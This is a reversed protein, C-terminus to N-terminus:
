ASRLFAASAEHGMGTLRTACASRMGQLLDHSGEAHWQEALFLLSAMPSASREPQHHNQVADIVADPLGWKRLLTAGADAHDMSYTLVEAYPLPFGSGLWDSLTIRSAADGSEFVLRGVDHLLGAVYAEAPDLRAAGAVDAAIDAIRQSKDWLDRLSSSAFIKGFSVALLVRRAHPVGIRAIADVLRSIRQPPGFSASNAIELLRGTLIQDTAVISELAAPSTTDSTRLLRGAAKPMVPLDTDRFRFAPPLTVKRLAIRAHRMANGSNERDFGTIAEALTLGELAAFEVAEDFENCVDLVDASLDVADCGSSKDSAVRLLIREALDLTDRSIGTFWDFVSGIGGRDTSHHLSAAVGIAAEVDAGLNLINSTRRALACVRRCHSTTEPRDFISLNPM